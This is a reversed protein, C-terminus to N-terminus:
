LVLFLALQPVQGGRPMALRTNPGGGEAVRHVPGYVPIWEFAYWSLFVKQFNQTEILTDALLVQRFMWCHWEHEDDHSLPLPM